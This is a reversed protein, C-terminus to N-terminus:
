VHQRTNTNVAAHIKELFTAKGRREGMLHHQFGSPLPFQGLRRRFECKLGCPKETQTELGATAKRLRAPVATPLTSRAQLLCAQPSWRDTPRVSGLPTANFHGWSLWMLTHRTTPAVQAPGPLIGLHSRKTVLAVRLQSQGHWANGSGRRLETRHAMALVTSQERDSMEGNAETVCTVEHM